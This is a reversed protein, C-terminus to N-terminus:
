KVCYGTWTFYAFFDGDTSLKLTQGEFDGFGQLTCHIVVRTFPPFTSGSPDFNYMRAITIGTFGSESGEEPIYYVGYYIGVFYGTETNLTASITSPMVVPYSDTGITLIAYYTRTNYKQQQIGGNTTWTRGPVFPGASTNILVADVKEKALVTSVMPTVMTVAFLLAVAIVLVKKNM